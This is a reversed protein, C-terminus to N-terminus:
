IKELKDYVPWGSESRIAEPHYRVIPLEVAHYEM